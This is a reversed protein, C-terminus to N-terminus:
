RWRFVLDRVTFSGGGAVPETRVIEFRRVEGPPIVVSDLRVERGEGDVRGRWLVRGGARVVFEGADSARLRFSVRCDVSATRSTATVSWGAAAGEARVWYETWSSEPPFFSADMTVSIPAVGARGDSLVRYAHSGPPRLAHASALAGIAAVLLALRRGLSPAVATPAFCAATMPLLVRAAAGPYGEWVRDGLEALLVVHVAGVRWWPNAWERWVVLVVAQACLGIMVATARWAQGGSATHWFGVIERWRRGVGSFPWQFNGAAGGGMADFRWVLSAYWLAFPLVAIVGLVASRRWAGWDRWPRWESPILIVLALVATERTLIAAALWAVAWGRRELVVCRVALAILLVAPADVLAGRVSTAFGFSLVVACWRGLAGWSAVGSWRWWLAAFVWWSAWPILAYISLTRAVDGGGALAALWSPLSRRARYPLNDIAAELDAGELGPRLALQAYYQADYGASGRWVYHPVRQVEPLRTTETRDGITLLYTWGQGSVRYSWGLWLMWGM